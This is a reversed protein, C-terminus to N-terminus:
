KLIASTNIPSVSMLIKATRLFNRDKSKNKSHEKREEPREIHYKIQMNVCKLSSFFMVSGSGSNGPHLVSASLM